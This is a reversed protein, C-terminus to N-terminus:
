LFFLSVLIGQFGDDMRKDYEPQLVVIGQM